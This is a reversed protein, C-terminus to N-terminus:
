PNVNTSNEKGISLPEKRSVKKRGNILHLNEEPVGSIERSTKGRKKCL